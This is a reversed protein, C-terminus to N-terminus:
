DSNSLPGFLRDFWSNLEKTHKESDMRENESDYWDEFERLDETSANVFNGTVNTAM